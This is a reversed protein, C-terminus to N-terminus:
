QNLRYDVYSEDRLQRLWNQLAEDAKRKRILERAQNRLFHHTNDRTRRAMVQVIHWGFRTRFPQSIQGPKLADMVSEFKPVLEGPSVWGLSGGNAASGTDDSNARSLEAFNAGALIRQRLRLLHQRADNDSVLQNTRLMIQRALTQKVVHRQTSRKGLLKIIHFGSPSRILHSIGGPKMRAVIDAFLRPLQGAKRWGLDGGQLAQQGASVAIATQSFNAGAYLQALVQRAKTRAAQIDQPTASEPIPILIHALHYEEGMDHRAAQNALFDNVEQDTVIIKNYVARKHLHSIIMEHRINERFDAFTYGQSTVAQRFQPLTLNNRRAINGLVHNLQEDDVQIGLQRAAQLQLRNLVMKGLVQRRLINKAPLQTKEAHLRRTIVTLQKDLQTTTIVGNNVVAIIRDLPVVRAPTATTALAPQLAIGLWLTALSLAFLYPRM